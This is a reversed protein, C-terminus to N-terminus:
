EDKVEINQQVKIEIFRSPEFESSKNEVELHIALLKM